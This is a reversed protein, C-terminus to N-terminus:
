ILFSNHKKFPMNDSKNIEKQVIYLARNRDKISNQEWANQQEQAPGMLSIAFKRNWILTPFPLLIYYLSKRQCNFAQSM